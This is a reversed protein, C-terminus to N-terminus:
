LELYLLPFSKYRSNGMIHYFLGTGIAPDNQENGGGFHSLNIEFNINSILYADLSLGSQPGGFILVSVGYKKDMSPSSLRQSNFPQSELFIFSLALLMQILKLYTFKSEM